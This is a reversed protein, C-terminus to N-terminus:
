PEWMRRYNDWIKEGVLCDYGGDQAPRVGMRNVPPAPPPVDGAIELVLKKRVAGAFEAWDTVPIVFSGSGGVVCNIYYQDLDPLNWQTGIGEQTMLPLGNITIGQALVTDRAPIVPGGDNNPGDGSIDIVRRLGTFGNDKFLDAGTTLAGSISTRRMGQSFHRTLTQAFAEADERSGIIAWDHVVNQSWAGAWEVYAIAIHGLFGDGIVQLVADSTLAEAYGRRQIELENPTMSRSVDVLLLLEVDVEVSNPDYPEVQATAPAAFATAFLAALTRLM